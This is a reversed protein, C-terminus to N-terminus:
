TFDIQSMNTKDLLSTNLKIMIMAVTVNNNNNDFIYATNNNVNTPKEHALHLDVM